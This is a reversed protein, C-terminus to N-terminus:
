KNRRGRQFVILCVYATFASAGGAMALVDFGAGDLLWAGGTSGVFVAMYTTCSMFAMAIGRANKAAETLLTASATQALGQFVGWGLMGAGLAPVSWTAFSLLMLMATLLLLALGLVREKGFRDLAVANFTSLALGSGYFLVILGFSGTGILLREKAVVGLFTYVAYFSLIDFFNIALLLPVGNALLGSLMYPVPKGTPKSPLRALLYLAICALASVALFTARWGYWQAIVSGLPVGIILALSWGAMVRGMSKGRQEFPIEDGIYAYCAPLFAAAAVGCLIRGSLLISFYPALACIVGALVFIALGATMTKKRAVRQSLLAVVPSCVALSLGYVAVLLAAQTVGVGFEGAIDNLVPAVVLAEVGVALVGVTLANTPVKHENGGAGPGSHKNGPAASPEDKLPPM